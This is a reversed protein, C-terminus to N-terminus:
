IEQVCGKKQLLNKNMLQSLSDYSLVADLVISFGNGTRFPGMPSLKIKTDAPREFSIRPRATLGLSINLSDKQIGFQNIRFQGPNIQLWGLGYLDYSKNLQDWVQQFKSRLDTTGYNKDLSQKSADLEAKLGKMVQTTINQGWFCVECKDLPNPENRKTYLRLKYDPDIGFEVFDAAKAVM